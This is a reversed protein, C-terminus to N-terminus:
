TLLKTAATTVGSALMSVIAAVKYLLPKFTDFQDRLRTVESELAKCREDLRAMGVRTDADNDM